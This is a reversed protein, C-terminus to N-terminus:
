QEKTLRKRFEIPSVGTKQKFINSFNYEDSFCLKDSIEFIKMSSNKLLEKAMFIRKDLLYNYPTTNYYKKFERNMQSKSINIEACLDNLTIKRYISADLREKVDNALPSTIKENSIKQSLSFLIKFIIRSLGISYEDHYPHKEAYSILETFYQKCDPNHIVVKDFLGYASLLGDLIGSFFNIWMKKYPEKKDAGYVHSSGPKLMYFDGAKVYYTVGDQKIYGKGSVVYEFVYYDLHKRQIFYDKDPNTIGISEARMPYNKGKEYDLFIIEEKECSGYDINKYPDPKKTDYGLM